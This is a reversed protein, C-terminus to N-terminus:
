SLKEILTNVGITIVTGAIAWVIKSITGKWQELRDIRVMLGDRGQSGLTLERVTSDLHQVTDTLTKMQEEIRALRSSDPTTM